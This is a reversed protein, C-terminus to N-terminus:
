STAFASQDLCWVVMSDLSEDYGDEEVPSVRLEAMIEHVVALIESRSQGIAALQRAFDCVCEALGALAVRHRLLASTLEARSQEPLAPSTDRRDDPRRPM